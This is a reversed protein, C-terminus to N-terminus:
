YIFCKELLVHWKWVCFNDVAAAMEAVLFNNFFLSIKYILKKIGIIFFFKFINKPIKIKLVWNIVHLFILNNHCKKSFHWLLVNKRSIANERGAWQIVSIHFKTAANALFWIFIFDETSLANQSSVLYNKCYLPADTSNFLAFVGTFWNTWDGVLHGDGVVAAM